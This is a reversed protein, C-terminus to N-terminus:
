RRLRGLASRVDVRRGRDLAATALWAAAAALVAAPVAGLGGTGVLLGAFLISTLLLRTMAAM